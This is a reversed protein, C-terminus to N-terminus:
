EGEVLTFVAEVVCGWCVLGDAPKGDPHPPPLPAGRALGATAPLTPEWSGTSVRAPEPSARVVTEGRVQVEFRAGEVTTAIARWEVKAVTLHAYPGKREGAHEAYALTVNSAAEPWVPDPSWQVGYKGAAAHGTVDLSAAQPLPNSVQLTVPGAGLFGVQAVPAMGTPDPAEREPVFHGRIHVEAAADRVDLRARGDLPRLVIRGELTIAFEGWANERSAGCGSSDDGILLRVSGSRGHGTVTNLSGCRARVEVREVVLVRDPPIVGGVAYIASPEGSVLVSTVDIPAPSRREGWDSLLGVSATGRAQLLLKTPDQVEGLSARAAEYTLLADAVDSEILRRENALEREVYRSAERLGAETV